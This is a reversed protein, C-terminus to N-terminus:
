RITVIPRNDKKKRKKKKKLYDSLKEVSNHMGDTAKDLFANMNEKSTLRKFVLIVFRLAAMMSCLGVVWWVFNM